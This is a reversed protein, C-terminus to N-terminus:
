TINRGIMPLNYWNGRVDKVLIYLPPNVNKRRIYTYDYNCLFNDVFRYKIEDPLLVKFDRFEPNYLFGFAFIM